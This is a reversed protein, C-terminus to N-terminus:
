NSFLILARVFILISLASGFIAVSANISFWGMEVYRTWFSKKGSIRQLNSRAVGYDRITRFDYLSVNKVLEDLTVEVSECWLKSGSAHGNEIQIDSKLCHLDELKGAEIKKPNDAIWKMVKSNTKETEKSIEAGSGDQSIRELAIQLALRFGRAIQVHQRNNQSHSSSLHMGFGGAAVIPLSLALAWFPGTDSIELYGIAATALAAALAVVVGTSRERLADHHRAQDTHERYMMRLSEYLQESEPRGGTMTMM